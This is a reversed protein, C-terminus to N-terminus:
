MLLSFSYEAFKARSNGIHKGNIMRRDARNRRKKGRKDSVVCPRSSASVDASVNVEENVEALKCIM